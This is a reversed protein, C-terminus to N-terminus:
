RQWFNGGHRRFKPDVDFACLLLVVACLAPLVAVGCLFGLWFQM